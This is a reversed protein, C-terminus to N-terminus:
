EVSLPDEQFLMAVAPGSLLDYEHVTGSEIVASVKIRLTVARSAAPFLPYAVFVRNTLVFVEERNPESTCPEDPFVWILIFPDKELIEGPSRIVAVPSSLIDKTEPVPFKECLLVEDPTDATNSGPSSRPLIDRSFFCVTAANGVRTRCPTEEDDFPNESVAEAM